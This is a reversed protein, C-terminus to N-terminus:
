RIDCGQWSRCRVRCSARSRVLEIRRRASQRHVLLVPRRDLPRRVVLVAERSPRAADRRPTAHARRTAARQRNEVPRAAEKPAARRRRGAPCGRCTRPAHGEGRRGGRRRWARTGRRAARVARPAGRRTRGMRGGRARDSAPPGPRREVGAGRRPCATRENLRPVSSKRSGKSARPDHRRSSRGRHLRRVRSGDFPSTSGRRARPWSTDM